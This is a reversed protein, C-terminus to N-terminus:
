TSNLPYGTKCSFYDGTQVAAGKGPRKCTEEREQDRSKRIKGRCAPVGFSMAPMDSFSPRKESAREGGILRRCRDQKM